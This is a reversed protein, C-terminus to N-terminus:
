NVHSAAHYSSRVLPGSEVHRFGISKGFRKFALFEQPTVYREIPLHNRTPQLYQGITMIDCGHKNLDQMVQLVEDNNEGIGVMIGSKTLVGYEKANKIVDLSQQYHAQPRVTKYLRQVTETNHNLIDPKANLVNNLSGRCGKFDPILVEIRCDPVIKRVAHITEAFILSGGDSLEDRNVSTIVAHELQLTKVAVAVREPERTDLSIPNGTKVACFGCNRTCIDGLIMFTATRQGWCEGINPCRASECVTHLAHNKVLGKIEAYEKSASLRVKLWDPKRGIGSKKIKPEFAFKSETKRVSDGITNELQQKESM